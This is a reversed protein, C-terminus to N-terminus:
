IQCLDSCVFGTYHWTSQDCSKYKNWKGKDYSSGECCGNLVQQSYTLCNKRTTGCQVYGCTSPPNSHVQTCQAPSPASCDVFSGDDCVLKIYCSTATASYQVRSMDELFQEVSAARELAGVSEPRTGTVSQIPQAVATVSLIMLFGAFSGILRM